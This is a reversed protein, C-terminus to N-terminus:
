ESNELKQIHGVVLGNGKGSEKEQISIQAKTIVYYANAIDVLSAGALHDDGIVSLMKAQLETLHLGQLQRYKTLIGEHYQLFAIRRSLTPISVGMEESIEFLRKGEGRM